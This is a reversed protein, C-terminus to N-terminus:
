PRGTTIMARVVLPLPTLKISFEGCHCPPIGFWSCNSVASASNRWPASCHYARNSIWKTFGHQHPSGVALRQHFQAPNPVVNHHQAGVHLVGIEAVHKFLREGLDSSCVDSSWDSVLRTHRRRSSFFCIDAKFAVWDAEM